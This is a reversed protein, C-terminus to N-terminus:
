VPGIRWTQTSSGRANGKVKHCACAIGCVAMLNLKRVPTSVPQFTLMGCSAQKAFKRNAIAMRDNLQVLVQVHALEHEASHVLVQVHALEHEASSM